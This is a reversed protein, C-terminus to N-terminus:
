DECQTTWKPNKLAKRARSLALKAMDITDATCHTIVIASSEMRNLASHEMQTIIIADDPAVISSLAYIANNYANEEDEEAKEASETSDEPEIGELLGYGCFAFIPRGDEDKKEMIYRTADDLIIRKLVSRAKKADTVHFYNSRTVAEYYAM